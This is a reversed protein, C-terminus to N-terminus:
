SPRLIRGTTIIADARARSLALVFADTPSPAHQRQHAPRAPRRGPRQWAAVVQSIGPRALLAPDGFLAALRDTLDAM